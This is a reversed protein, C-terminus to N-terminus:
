RDHRCARGGRPPPTGVRFGTLQRTKHCSQPHQVVEDRAASTSRKEESQPQVPLAPADTRERTATPQAECGCMPLQLSPPRRGPSRLVDPPRRELVPRLTSMRLRLDQDRQQRRGALSPGGRNGGAPPSGGRLVREDITQDSRVRVLRHRECKGRREPPLALLDVEPTQRSFGGPPVLTLREAQEQLQGAPQAAITAQHQTRRKEPVAPPRHHTGEEGAPGLWRAIWQRQGPTPAIEEADAEVAEGLGEPRLPAASASSAARSRWPKV